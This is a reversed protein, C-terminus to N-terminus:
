PRRFIKSNKEVLGIEKTLVPIYLCRTAVFCNSVVSQHVQVRIISFKVNVLCKCFKNSVICDFGAFFNAWRPPVSRLIKRPPVLNQYKLASGLGLYGNKDRGRLLTSGSITSFIDHLLFQATWCNFQFWHAAPPPPAGVNPMSGGPGIQCQGGWIKLNKNIQKSRFFCWQFLRLFLITFITPSHICWHVNTMFTLGSQGIIIPQSKGVIFIITIYISSHVIHKCCAGTTPPLSLINKVTKTAGRTDFCGFHKCCAGTNTKSGAKTAVAQYWRVWPSMEPYRCVM